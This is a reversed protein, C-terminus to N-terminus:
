GEDGDDKSSKNDLDVGKGELLSPMNFKPRNTMKLMVIHSLFNKVVERAGALKGDAEEEKNATYINGEAEVIIKKLEPIDAAKPQRNSSLMKKLLNDWKKPLGTPNAGAETKASIKSGKRRFLKSKNSLTIWLISIELVLSSFRIYGTRNM